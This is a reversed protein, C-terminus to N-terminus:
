HVTTTGELQNIEALLRLREKALMGDPDANIPREGPHLRNWHACDILIQNINNIIRKADRILHEKTIDIKAPPLAFEIKQQSARRAMEIVDNADAGCNACWEIESGKLSRWSGCKCCRFGRQDFVENLWTQAEKSLEPQM